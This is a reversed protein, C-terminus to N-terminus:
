ADRILAGANWDVIAAASRHMMTEALQYGRENSLDGLGGGMVPYAFCFLLTWRYHELMQEYSYDRVGGEVLLGHYLKLLEEEHARRLATDLSQSMFYGVDYTGAGQVSIQWDIVTLPPDGPRTAFFLNDQRLDGHCITRPGGDFRDLINGVEIGLKEGTRRMAEPLAHGFRELFIPWAQPYLAVGAKNIPDSTVPMWTLEELRPSEWWTAHLTAMERIILRADEISCGGLQDGLRSASLDELLLIFDGSTPEVDGHYCRPTPLALAGALDRYFRVEREYFRFVSVMERTRPDTTPIKVVLSRPAGPAPGDYALTLRALQCLLGVGQGVPEFQVGTITADDIHGNGRLTRTLWEPTLADFSTPITVAAM